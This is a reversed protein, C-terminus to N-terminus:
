GSKLNNNIACKRPIMGHFPIELELSLIKHYFKGCIISLYLAPCFTRSQYMLALRLCKKVIRGEKKMTIM